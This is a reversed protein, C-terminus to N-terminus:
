LTIPKNNFDIQIVAAVDASGTLGLRTAEVSPLTLTLSALPTSTLYPEVHVDFRGISVPEVESMKRIVRSDLSCKPYFIAM